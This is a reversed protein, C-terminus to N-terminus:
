LFRFCYIIWAWRLHGLKKSTSRLLHYLSLGSARLRTSWQKWCVLEQRWFAWNRRNTGPELLAFFFCIQASFFIGRFFIKVNWKKRKLTTNTPSPDDVWALTRKKNALGLYAKFLRSVNISPSCCSEDFEVKKEKELMLSRHFILIM